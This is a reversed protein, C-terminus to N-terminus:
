EKLGLDLKMKKMENKVTENDVLNTDGKVDAEELGRQFAKLREALLKRVKPPLQEGVQKGFLKFRPAPLLWAILIAMIPWVTNFHEKFFDLM